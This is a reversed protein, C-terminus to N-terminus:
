LASFRELYRFRVTGKDAKLVIVVLRTIREYERGESGVSRM